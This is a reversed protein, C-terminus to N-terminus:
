VNDNELWKFYIMTYIKGYLSQLGGFMTVAQKKHSISIILSLTHNHVYKFVYWYTNIYEGDNERGKNKNSIM